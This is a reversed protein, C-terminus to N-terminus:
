GAALNFINILATKRVPGKLCGCCGSGKSEFTIQRIAEEIKKSTFKKLDRMTDALQHYPASRAILHVHNSMIIWGNVILGKEQQRYKLSDVIIDM